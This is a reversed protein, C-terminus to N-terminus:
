MCIRYVVADSNLGRPGGGLTHTEKRTSHAVRKAHLMLCMINSYSNSNIQISETRFRKTSNHLM